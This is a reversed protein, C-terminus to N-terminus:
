TMVPLPEGGDAHKSTTARSYPDRRNSDLRGHLWPAMIGIAFNGRRAIIVIRDTRNLIMGCAEVM